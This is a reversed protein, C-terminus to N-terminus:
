FLPVTCHPFLGANGHAQLGSPLRRGTVLLGPCYVYVSSPGPRRPNNQFQPPWPAGIVDFGPPGTNVSRPRHNPPWVGTKATLNEGHCTGTTRSRGNTVDNSAKVALRQKGSEWWWKDSFCLFNESTTGRDVSKPVHRKVLRWAPCCVQVGLYVLPPLGPRRRADEAQSYPRTECHGRCGLPVRKKPM